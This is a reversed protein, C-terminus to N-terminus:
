KVAWLYAVADRGTRQNEEVLPRLHAAFRECEERTLAQAMAEGLTPALPNPASRLRAEWDPVEDGGFGGPTVRAEYNLGIRGFGAHEALEFLDREDSDLMASEEPPQRSAYVAKVKDALDAVPSVDYELFLHPPEPYTFTNIPEFISLRGGPKLVRYFEEFARKKDKVYILVSRTTVVDVSAENLTSLDDAPTQLFSCRDAM